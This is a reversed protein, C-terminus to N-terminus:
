RVGGALALRVLQRLVGVSGAVEDAVLDPDPRDDRLWDRFALHAERRCRVFRQYAPTPRHPRPALLAPLDASRM